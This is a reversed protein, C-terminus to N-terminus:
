RRLPRGPDRPHKGRFPTFWASPRFNEVGMLANGEGPPSEIGDPALDFMVAEVSLDFM